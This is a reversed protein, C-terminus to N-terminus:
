LLFMFYRELLLSFSLYLSLFYSAKLRISTLMNVYANGIDKSIAGVSNNLTINPSLGYIGKNISMYKTEITVLLFFRKLPTPKLAILHMCFIQLRILKNTAPM